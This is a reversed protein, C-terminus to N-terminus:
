SDELHIKNYMRCYINTWDFLCIFRTINVNAVSRKPRARSRAGCMINCNQTPHSPVNQETRLAM